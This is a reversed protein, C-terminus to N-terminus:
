HDSYFRTFLYRTFLYCTFLYCTFLYLYPQSRFYRACVTQRWQSEPVATEDSGARETRGSDSSLPLGRGLSRDCQGVRGAALRLADFVQGPRRRGLQPSTGTRATAMVPPKRPLARSILALWLKGVM